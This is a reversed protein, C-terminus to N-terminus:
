FAAARRRASAVWAFMLGLLFVVAMSTGFIILPEDASGTDPLGPGGGTIRATVITTENPIGCEGVHLANGDRDALTEVWFYSGIEEFVVEESVYEADENLGATVPIPTTLDFVLTAPSCIALSDLAAIDDETWYVQETEGTPDGFEDVLPDGNEDLILRTVPDGNEDFVEDGVRVERYAAFTLTAGTPVLGNVIATDTSPDGLQVTPTAQTVVNPTTVFTTENPIGCEGIHLAVDSGTDPDITWLTEVWYYTGVSLFTVPPSTYTVFDNFGETVPVPSGTTDFVPQAVCLEEPTLLDIEEQTWLVPAGDGDVIGVGDIDVKQEGAVVAKQATFTLYSDVPVYGNVTANDIAPDTIAVEPTAQTTVEPINVFTMESEIGFQDSWERFYGQNAVPQDATRISWVWVVWGTEDPTIVSPSTYTGIANATISVTDILSAEAPVTDTLPPRTEGPYFYAEGTMTVPIRSGDRTLWAGNNLFITVTDQVPSLPAATKQVTDTTAILNTPVVSTEIVQGFEDTFNYDPPLLPLYFPDQDAADIEWVWTYFGSELAELEPLDPTVYTGPGNLTVPIDTAVIPAGVPAVAQQPPQFTFPGYLTGRAEFPIFSGDARTAWPTSAPNLPDNIGAFLTDTFTEGEQVFQPAETTVIPEFAMGLPDDIADSASFNITSTGPTGGSVIQQAAGTNHLNLNQAWGSGVTATFNASAVIDYKGPEADIPTAKIAIASGNTVSATALGTSAVTAGTLTLTGTANTPSTTINVVGDVGNIMNISVTASGSGGSPPTLALAEARFQNYYATIEAHESVPARFLYWDFGSASPAHPENFTTPNAISWIALQVAVARNRNDTTDATNSGRVNILYNIRMMDDPTVTENRTVGTVNNQSQVGFSTTRLTDGSSFTPAPDIGMEICYAVQTGNVLRAGIFSNPGPESWGLSETVPGSAAQAINIGAFSAGIVLLSTLTAAIAARIGKRPKTRTAISM